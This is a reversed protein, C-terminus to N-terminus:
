GLARAAVLVVWSAIQASLKGLKMSKALVRRVNSRRSPLKKENDVFSPTKRYMSLHSLKTPMM